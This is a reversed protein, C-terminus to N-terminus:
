PGPPNRRGLKGSEGRRSIVDCQEGGFPNIVGGDQYINDSSIAIPITHRQKSTQEKLTVHRMKMKRPRAGVANNTPPNFGGAAAVSSTLEIIYETGYDDFYGWTSVPDRTNAM